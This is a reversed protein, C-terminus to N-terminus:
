SGIFEITQYFHGGSLSSRQGGGSKAMGGEPKPEIFMGDSLSLIM